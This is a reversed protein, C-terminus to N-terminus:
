KWLLTLVWWFIPVSEVWFSTYYESRRPSAFLTFFVLVLLLLANIWLQTIKFDSQLLELGYFLVLLFLNLQKTKPVGLQQPVTQLSVEDKKLDIIEFILMLIIVLLFRQIFKLWVDTSFDLEANIIPLLLTVGAWCFAVIYIKIGAWNRVNQIKQSLPLAYLIILGLFLLTLLQSNRQLQFFYYVTAVFSFVSLVVITKRERTHQMKHTRMLAEYKVFNYGVITGFFAFFAMPLDYPLRFFHFTMQVLAYVALAVHISGNIYFDLIKKLFRIM